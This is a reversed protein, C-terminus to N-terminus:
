VTQVVTLPDTTGDASFAAFTASGMGFKNTVVGKSSDARVANVLTHVLAGSGTGNVADNITWGITCPTNRPVGRLKALDGGKFTVGRSATSAVMLTPFPNGDSQWPEIGEADIVDIEVVELLTIVTPGVGYSLTVGSFSM